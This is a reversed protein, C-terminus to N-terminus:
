HPCTHPWRGHVQEECQGATCTRQWQILVPRSESEPEQEVQFSSAIIDYQCRSKVKKNQRQQLRIQKARFCECVSVSVCIDTWWVSTVPWRVCIDLYLAICTSLTVWILFVPWAPMWCSIHFGVRHESLGAVQADCISWSWAFACKIIHFICGFCDLFAHVISFLILICGANSFCM